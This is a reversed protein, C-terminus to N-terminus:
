PCGQPLGELLNADLGVGNADEARQGREPDDDAVVQELRIHAHDVRSGLECQRRAFDLREEFHGSRSM